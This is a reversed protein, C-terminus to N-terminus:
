FTLFLHEHKLSQLSKIKLIPLLTVKRSKRGAEFLATHTEQMTWKRFAMKTVEVIDVIEIIIM